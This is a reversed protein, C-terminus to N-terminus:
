PDTGPMPINENQVDKLKEELQEQFNPYIELSTFCPNPDLNLTGEIKYQDLYM